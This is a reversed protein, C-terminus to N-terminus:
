VSVYPHTANTVVYVMYAIYLAVLLAGGWRNITNERATKAMLWVLLSAGALASYDVVTITGSELPGVIACLGIIGFVNLVCAGVINGLALGPKGKIAAIVSAVLDPSASGFAVVTLGVMGESLGAKLAIGSAGDVVWNGGVVLAALSVAVMGVAVWTNMPRAPAANEDAPLKSAHIARAPPSVCPTARELKANQFTSRTFIVMLAILMLGDTRDITNMPAGDFLKDDACFFLALSSLALMPLDQTLLTYDVKLPKILALVGFVLLIDFINAGVVDGLAMQSKHAITSTLCVVLDPMSSGVAVVTLGIVLNSVNLKRALAVAGDTLYNGGAILAAIGMLLFIIDHVM